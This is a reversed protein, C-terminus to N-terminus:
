NYSRNIKKQTAYASMIRVLYETCDGAPTIVNNVENVSKVHETLDGPQFGSPGLRKRINQASASIGTNLRRMM